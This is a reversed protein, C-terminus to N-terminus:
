STPHPKIQPLLDLFPVQAVTEIVNKKKIEVEFLFCKKCVIKAM